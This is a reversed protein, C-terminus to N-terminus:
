RIKIIPNPTLEDINTIIFTYFDQEYAKDWYEQSFEDQHTFSLYHPYNEDYNALINQAVFGKLFKKPQFDKGEANFTLRLYM